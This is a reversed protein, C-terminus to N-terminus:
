RGGEVMLSGILVGFAQSWLFRSFLHNFLLTYKLYLPGGVAPLFELVPPHILGMVGHYMTVGAGLFFIGVGSILSYVYRARSFGYRCVYVTYNYVGVYVCICM